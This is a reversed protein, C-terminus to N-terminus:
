LFKKRNRNIWHVNHIAERLLKKERNMEIIERIRKNLLKCLHSYSFCFVRKERLVHSM